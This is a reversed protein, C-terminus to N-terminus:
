YLPHMADRPLFWDSNLCPLLHHPKPIATAGAPGHRRMWYVVDRCHRCYTPYFLLCFWYLLFNQSVRFSQEVRKKRVRNLILKLWTMKGHVPVQCRVAGRLGVIISSGLAWRSSDHRWLSVHRSSQAHVTETQVSLVHVPVTSMGFTCVCLAFMDSCQQLIEVTYTKERSDIVVLFFTDWWYTAVTCHYRQEECWHVTSNCCKSM